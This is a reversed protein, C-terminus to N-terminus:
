VNETRGTDPRTPPPSGTQSIDKDISIDVEEDKTNQTQQLQPGEQPAGAEQDSAPIDDSVADEGSLDVLPPDSQVAIGSETVPHVTVTETEVKGKVSKGVKNLSSMSGAAALSQDQYDRGAAAEVSTSFDVYNNMSATASQNVFSDHTQDVSSGDWDTAVSEIFDDSVVIPPTNLKTGRTEDNISTACNSPGNLLPTREGRKDDKRRVLRRTLGKGVYRAHEIVDDRVDRVDWMSLFSSCCNSQDAEEDMYPKHSFSFYHAVAAFFMEICICFDQLGTAEEKVSNYFLWPGNQPIVGLKALAAIVVSQWFSLFVVAKVCLFKPLPKIPALEEKASKYFLILCYMAWIQSINNVIVLYSWATTFNFDGEDYKGGLECLLAIVTTAPRVITYQLVGHKCRQLFLKGMPWPPLLCFPIMHKVQAKNELEIDLHPHEQHLYNMLYRMFNYIVYAEYCERVTDLYIAARPFRLALWANLAYIPVMWLIRIINRQLLPQTCYVLHQVIGWLSIPLSMMVFLGGVFWAQVHVEKKRKNLEWICLPLAITLLLIYVLMVLPRIWRRWRNFCDM